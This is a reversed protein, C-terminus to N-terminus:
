FYCCIELWCKFSCAMISLACIVNCDQKVNNYCSFQDQGKRLNYSAGYKM